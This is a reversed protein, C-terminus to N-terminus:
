LLNNQHIYGANVNNVWVSDIIMYTSNNNITNILKCYFTDLMAVQVQAYITISGSIEMNLNSVNLNLGYYKVDYKNLEDIVSQSKNDTISYTKNPSKQHLNKSSINDQASLPFCSFFSLVIIIVKM